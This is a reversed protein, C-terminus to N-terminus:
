GFYKFLFFGVIIFILMWVISIVTGLKALRQGKLDYAAIHEFATLSFILGPPATIPIIALILGIIAAKSTPQNQSSKTKRMHNLEILFVCFYCSEM